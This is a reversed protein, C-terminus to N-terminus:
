RPGTAVSLGIAFALRSKEAPKRAPSAPLEAQPVPKPADDDAIAKPVRGVAGCKSCRVKHGAKENGVEYGKGCVCRFKLM